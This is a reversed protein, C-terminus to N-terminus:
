LLELIQLTTLVISLVSLAFSFLVAIDRWHGVFRALWKHFRNMQEYRAREFASPYLTVTHEDRAILGFMQLVDLPKGPLDEIRLFEASDDGPVSLTYDFRSVGISATGTVGIQVVDHKEALNAM